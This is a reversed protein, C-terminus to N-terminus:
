NRNDLRNQRFQALREKYSPTNSPIHQEEEGYEQFILMEEPDTELLERERARQEERYPNVPVTIDHISPDHFVANATREDGSYRALNRSTSDRKLQAFYVDAANSITDADKNRGIKRGDYGTGYERYSYTPGKQPTMGSPSMQQYQQNQQMGQPISEMPHTQQQYQNMSQLYPDPGTQINREQKEFQQSKQQEQYKQLAQEYPDQQRIESLAQMSQSDECNGQFQNTNYNLHSHKTQEEYQNPPNQPYFITQSHEYTTQQQQQQQQYHYHNQREMMLERFLRAQEDVSLSMSNPPIYVQSQSQHQYAYSNTQLRPFSSAASDQARAMMKRFKEGGQFLM